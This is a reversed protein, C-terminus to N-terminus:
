QDSSLSSQLDPSKMACPRTMHCSWAESVRGGPRRFGRNGCLLLSVVRGLLCQEASACHTRAAGPNGSRAGSSPLAAALLHPTAAGAARLTGRERIRRAITQALPSKSRGFNGVTANM